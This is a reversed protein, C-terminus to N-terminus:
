GYLRDEAEAASLHGTYWRWRATIGEVAAVDVSPAGGGLVRGVGEWVEAADGAPLALRALPVTSAPRSGPWLVLAGDYGADRFVHLVAATLPDGM